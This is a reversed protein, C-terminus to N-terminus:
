MPLNNVAKNGLLLLNQCRGKFLWGACLNEVSTEISAGTDDLKEETLVYYKRMKRRDVMSGTM